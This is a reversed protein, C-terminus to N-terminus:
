PVTTSHKPDIPALYSAKMSYGVTRRKSDVIKEDPLPGEEQPTPETAPPQPPNAPAKEAPEDHAGQEYGCNCCVCLYECSYHPEKKRVPKKVLTRQERVCGCRPKWIVEWHFGRCSRDDPVCKTGCKASPGPLCIPECELQYEYTVKERMECKPKCVSRHQCSGCNPCRYVDGKAGTALVLLAAIAWHSYRAM